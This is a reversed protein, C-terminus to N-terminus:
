PSEGGKDRRGQRAARTECSRSGCGADTGGSFIDEDDPKTSLAVVAGDAAVMLGDEILGGCTQGIRAMARKRGAALGQLLGGPLFTKNLRYNASSIITGGM